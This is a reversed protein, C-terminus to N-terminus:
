RSGANTSRTMASANPRSGALSATGDSSPRSRGCSRAAISDGDSWEAIARKVKRISASSLGECWLTPRNADNCDTFERGLAVARVHGVGKRAIATAMDNVKDMRALHEIMPENPTFFTGDQDVVRVWGMREPARLARLGLRTAGQIMKFFKPHLAKRDQRVGVCIQITNTGTATIRSEVRTNGFVKIRDRKQVGELTALTECFFGRFVGAAVRLRRTLHAARQRAGALGAALEDTLRDARDAAGVMAGLMRIMDFIEAVTRQNFAHVDVGQRVLAAM